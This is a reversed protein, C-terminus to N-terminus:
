KAQSVMYDVAAKVNADSLAPNGGKAPMMGAKGQFGKIAHEILTANGQAIRATWAPKDGLKPAGAVGAGHCVVCAQTYTAKGDVKEPASAVVAAKPPIANAPPSSATATASASQAVPAIRQNIAATQKAAEQASVQKGASGIEHTGVAFSALLFLAVILAVTGIAVGIALKVPHSEINKEVPDSHHQSM